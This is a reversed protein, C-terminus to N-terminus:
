SRRRAKQSPRGRSSRGASRRSTETSPGGLAARLEGLRAQSAAHMAEAKAIRARTQRIEKHRAAALDEPNM